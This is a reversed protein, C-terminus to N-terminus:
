GALGEVVLVEMNFVRPKRTSNVIASGTTTKLGEVYYQHICVAKLDSSDISFRIQQQYCNFQQKISQLIQNGLNKRPDHYFHPNLMLPLQLQAAQQLLFHIILRALAKVGHHIHYIMPGVDISDVLLAPQQQNVQIYFGPITIFPQPRQFGKKSHAFCVLLKFAQQHMAHILGFRALNGYPGDTCSNTQKDGSIVELLTDHQNLLLAIQNFPQEIEDFASVETILQQIAPSNVTSLSDSFRSIMWSLSFQETPMNDLLQCLEHPNPRYKADRLSDLSAYAQRIPLDLIARCEAEVEPNDLRDLLPHRIDPLADLQNNPYLNQLLKCWFATKISQGQPNFCITPEIDYIQNVPQRIFSRYGIDSFLQWLRIEQKVQAAPKDWLQWRAVFPHQPYQQNLTLCCDRWQQYLNLHDRQRELLWLSNRMWVINGPALAVQQHLDTIFGPEPLADLRLLHHCYRMFMAALEPKKSSQKADDCVLQQMWQVIQDPATPGFKLYLPGVLKLWQNAAYPHVNDFLEAAQQWWRTVPLQLNNSLMLPKFLQKVPEKEGVYRQIFPLLSNLKYDMTLLKKLVLFWQLLTYNSHLALHLTISQCPKLQGKRIALRYFRLYEHAVFVGQHNILYHIDRSLPELQAPHHILVQRGEKLLLLSFYELWNYRQQTKGMAQKQIENLFSLWSLLKNHKNKFFRAQQFLTTWVADAGGIFPTLPEILWSLDTKHPPSLNNVFDMAAMLINAWMQPDAFLDPKQSAMRGQYRSAAKFHRNILHLLPSFQDYKLYSKLGIAFFHPFLFATVQDHRCRKFHKVMQSYLAFAPREDILESIWQAMTVPGLSPLAPTQYNDGLIQNLKALTNNRVNFYPQVIQPQEILLSVLATDASPM